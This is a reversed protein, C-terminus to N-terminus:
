FDEEIDAFATQWEKDTIGSLLFEREAPSLNPVIRQILDTKNDVDKLQQETINIDLTHSIGTLSSTKTILMIIITPSGM